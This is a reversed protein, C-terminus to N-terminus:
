TDLPGSPTPSGIGLYKHGLENLKQQREPCGCDGGLLKSVREKTIGVVSLGTAVLDGLGPKYGGCLQRRNILPAGCNKCRGGELECLTM